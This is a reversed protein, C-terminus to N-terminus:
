GIVMENINITIRESTCRYTGAMSTTVSTFNLNRTINDNVDDEVCVSSSSMNCSLIKTRNSYFWNPRRQTDCRRCRIAFSDGVTRNVELPSGTLIRDGEFFEAQIRTNEKTCQANM